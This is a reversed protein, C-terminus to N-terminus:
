KKLSSLGALVAFLGGCLFSLSLIGKLLIPGGLGNYIWIGLAATLLGLLLSM